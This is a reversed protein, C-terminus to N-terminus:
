MREFSDINICEKATHFSSQNHMCETGMYYMWLPYPMIIILLAHFIAKLIGTKFVDRIKNLMANATILQLAFNDIQDKWNLKKIM